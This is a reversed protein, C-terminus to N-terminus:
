LKFAKGPNLTQPLMSDLLSPWTDAAFRGPDTLLLGQWAPFCAFICDLASAGSGKTILPTLSIVVAIIIMM